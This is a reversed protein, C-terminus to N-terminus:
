LDDIKLLKKQAWESGFSYPQDGLMEDKQNLIFSNFFMHAKYIEEIIIPEDYPFPTRIKILAKWIGWWFTM